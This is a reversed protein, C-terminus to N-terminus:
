PWGRERFAALDVDPPAYWGQAGYRADLAFAAEKNGYPIRLPTGADTGTRADDSRSAREAASGGNPCRPM